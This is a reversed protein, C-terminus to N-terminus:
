KLQASKGWQGEFVFAELPKRERPALERERYKEPLTDPDDPYGVAIGAVPTFGEPLHYVERIRDAHIGAMQHVRLGRSEAEVVLSFSATGTDHLAYQNPKGNHEFNDRAISFMLVPAHVAWIHNSEVLCSAALEHAAPDDIPAVIYNWPQGNGSSPAWRAAELLSGIIERSVPTPAFARPSWRNKLLECIPRDVPAPKQM